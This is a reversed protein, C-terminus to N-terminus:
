PTWIKTKYIKKWGHYPGKLMTLIHMFSLCEGWKYQEAQPELKVSFHTEVVVVVVVWWWLSKKM